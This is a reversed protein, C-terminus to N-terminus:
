RRRVAGSRVATEVCTERRGGGGREELVVEMGAQLCQKGVERAAHGGQRSGCRRWQM